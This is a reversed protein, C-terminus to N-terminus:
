GSSPYLDHLTPNFPQFRLKMGCEALLKDAKRSQCRLCAAVLNLWETGGGKAKPVIHDRTSAGRGCYACKHRDRRLVNSTSPSLQGTREYKWRAYVYRVLEVTKPVPYPGFFEGEVVELARAVGRWMMTVAHKVSVRGLPEMGGANLIEVAEM